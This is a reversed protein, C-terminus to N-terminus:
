SIHSGIAVLVDCGVGIGEFNMNWHTGIGAHNEIVYWVLSPCDTFIKSSAEDRLRLSDLSLRSLLM